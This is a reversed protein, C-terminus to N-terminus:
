EGEYAAILALAGDTVVETDRSSVQHANVLFSFVLEEGAATTVYGSLGRTNSITGTKARVNGEAPTGKMRSRLTGDVGAIPQADRWVEWHEHGRMGTLIAALIRPSVYNYRSLGSGDMYAWGDSPVGFPALEEMVVRRGNSFSGNGHADLGMARAMNEAYMNQSRKMLGALIERLPPSAHEDLLLFDAPKHDWGEIDDCDRAEGDVEIGRSELTEKLVTAYFATANEIAPSREFSGSGAVVTGSVVIENGGYARDVSVSTRGEAVVTTNDVITVYGTPVNPTITMRGDVTAPPAFSLDIYNENFSLAGTEASWWADLGGLTWGYGHPNEDWADDDGVVDGAIRTVGREKLMDAWRFFVTRSDEQFRTYMTPDGDGFVVLNGHLTGDSIEGDACLRTTFTWDPGFHLLSAAATPIKENSAPMFLKDANREYWIEGTDLSQILAGWFANEFKPDDFFEGVEGILGARSPAPAVAMNTQAGTPACAALVGAVVIGSVALNLTHM